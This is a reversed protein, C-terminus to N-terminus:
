GIRTRSAVSMGRSAVLMVLALSVVIAPGTPLDWRLSALLGAAYAGIGLLYGYLLGKRASLLRVALAPFILSAFVLYVGVAQVAATIAIAFPLYFRWLPHRGLLMGSLAVVSSAALAWLQANDVWLIQGALLSQIHESGHADQSTVLVASSALVVFSGGILAEQIAAARKELEHLFLTMLLAAALACSQQLWPEAHDLLSTALLAGTAAAQAVALDIFIIGRALVQRGLAVHTLLVLAGAILAPGLIALTDTM